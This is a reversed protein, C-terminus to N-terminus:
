GERKQEAPAAPATAVEENKAAPEAQSLTELFRAAQKNDFRIVMFKIVPDFVKYYDELKRILPSPARFVFLVYFGKKHKKIEYALKRRGWIDSKLLEGGSKVILDKVKGTASELDEDTLSANLIIINEYINM